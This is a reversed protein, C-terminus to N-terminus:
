KAEEMVLDEEEDEEELIDLEELNFTNNMHTSHKIINIRYIHPRLFNNRFKSNKYINM